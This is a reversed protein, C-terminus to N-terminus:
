FFSHGVNVLHVFDDDARGSHRANSENERAAAVFLEITGGPVAEIDAALVAIASPGGGWIAGGRCLELASARNGLIM